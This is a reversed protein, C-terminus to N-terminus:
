RLESVHRRVELHRREGDTQFAVIEVNKTELDLIHEEIKKIEALCFELNTGQAKMHTIMSFKLDSSRSERLTVQDTLRQVM